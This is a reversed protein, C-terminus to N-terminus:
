IGKGTCSPIPSSLANQAKCYVKQAMTFKFLNITYMYVVSWGPVRVANPTYKNSINDLFMVATFKSRCLFICKMETHIRCYPGKQIFSVIVDYEM